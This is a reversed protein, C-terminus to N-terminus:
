AAGKWSAPAASVVSHSVTGHAPTPGARRRMPNPQRTHAHREVSARDRDGPAPRRSASPRAAASTAAPAFTSAPSSRTEVVSSPRRARRSAPSRTRAPATGRPRRRGSPRPRPASTARRSRTSWAPYVRSARGAAAREHHDRRHDPHRARRLEARVGRRDLAHPQQRLRRRALPAGVADAHVAECRRGLVHRDADALPSARVTAARARRGRRRRASRAGITANAASRRRASRVPTSATRRRRRRSPVTLARRSTPPRARRSSPRVAITVPAPCPTPRPCRARARPRPRWRRSRPAARRSRALRDGLLDAAAAVDRDADLGVAGLPGVISAHTACVTAFNPPSSIMTCLANLAAAGVPELVEVEVEPALVRAGRRPPRVVRGLDRVRVERGRALPAPEHEDRRGRADLAAAADRHVPRHLGRLPRQGLAQRALPAREADRHVADRRHGLRGRELVREVLAGLQLVRTSARM